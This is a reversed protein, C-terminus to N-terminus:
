ESTTLEGKCGACVLKSRFQSLDSASGCFTCREELKELIVRGDEASFHIYDGENIGLLRRLEAPIVIRGLHDIRRPLGASKM